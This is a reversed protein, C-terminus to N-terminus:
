LSLKYFCNISLLNYSYLKYMILQVCTYSFHKILIDIWVLGMGVFPYIQILFFLKGAISQSEVQETVDDENPDIEGTEADANPPVIGYTLDREM